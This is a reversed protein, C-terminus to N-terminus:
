QSKVPLVSLSECVDDEGVGPAFRWRLSFDCFSFSFRTRRSVDLSSIEDATAAAAAVVVVADATGDDEDDEAGALLVSAAAGTLPYVILSSVSVASPISSVYMPFVFTCEDDDKIREYDLHSIYLRCCSCSCCFLHSFRLSHDIGFVHVYQSTM